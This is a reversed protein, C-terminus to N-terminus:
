LWIGFGDISHVVQRVVGVVEEKSVQTISELIWKLVTKSNWVFYLLGVTWKDIIKSM